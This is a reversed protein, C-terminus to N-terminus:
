SKARSLGTLSRSSAPCAMVLPISWRPLVFPLLFPALLALLLSVILTPVTDLWLGNYTIDDSYVPLGRVLYVQQYNGFGRAVRVAPVSLLIEGVSAAQQDKILQETYNTVNYPTEM